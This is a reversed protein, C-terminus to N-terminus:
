EEDILKGYRVLFQRFKVIEEMTFHELLAKNTTRISEIDFKKHLLDLHKGKESLSLINFRRNKPNIKQKVYGLDELIRLTKSIFAPTRDWKKALDQATIGPTDAIDSVIHVEIMKLKDGTGYDKERYIYNYYTLVFNYVIQNFEDYKEYLQSLEEDSLDEVNRSQFLDKNEGM